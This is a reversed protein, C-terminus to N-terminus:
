RGSRPRAPAPLGAIPHLAVRWDGTLHEPEVTVTVLDGASVEVCVGGLDVSRLRQRYDWSEYRAADVGNVLVRLFGPTQAVMTVVLWSAGPGYSDCGTLEPGEWRFRQEVRRNPNDPDAHLEVYTFRAGSPELRPLAVPPSPLPYEEFQVREAVALAFTGRTPLTSERGTVAVARTVTVTITAPEGVALGTAAWFQPWGDWDGLELVPCYPLEATAAGASLEVLLQYRPARPDCRAFLVLDLTTPTFTVTLTRGALPAANAAVVRTGELYEPFGALRDVPPPMVPAASEEGGTLQVATTAGAAVALVALGALVPRLRAARRQRRLVRDLDVTSPPPEGIAQDFVQQYTM